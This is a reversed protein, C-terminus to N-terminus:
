RSARETTITTPPPNTATGPPVGDPFLAFIHPPLAEIDDLVETVREAYEPYSGRLGRLRALPALATFLLRQIPRPPRVLHHVDDFELATLAAQLLGPRGHEDTKGDAVLFFMTRLLKEFRAGAEIEVIVWATEDGDNWWAHATGAPVTIRDGPGAKSKRGNVSLGLHGRVVTFTETSGPHIHEFAVTAGPAAYLDAITTAHEDTAPRRLVGYEGTRPNALVDFTM